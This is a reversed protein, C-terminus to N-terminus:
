ALPPGRLPANTDCPASPHDGRYIFSVKERSPVPLFNLVFKFVTYYVPTDFKEFRCDNTGDASSVYPQLSTETEAHHHGLLGHIYVKPVAIFLVVALM